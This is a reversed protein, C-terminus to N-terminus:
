ASKRDTDALYRRYEALEDILEQETIKSQLVLIEGIRLRNDDQIELLREIQARTLHGLGLAIEGFRMYPQAQTQRKLIEELQEHKLMGRDVALVGILHNNIKQMQCAADLDSKSVKGRMLLFDGLRMFVEATATYLTPSPPRFDPCQHESEHTFAPLIVPLGGGGQTQITPTATSRSLNSLIRTASLYTKRICTLFLSM